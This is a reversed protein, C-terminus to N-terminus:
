EKGTLHVTGSSIKTAQVGGVNIGYTIEVNVTYPKGDIIDRCSDVRPGAAPTLAMVTFQGGNPVKPYCSPSNIVWCVVGGAQWNMTYPGGCPDLACTRWLYFSKANDEDPVVDFIPWQCTDNDVTVMLDQIAIEGGAANVFQCTFGNYNGPPWWLLNRMECTPLLPKLAQFGTATPPVSGGVNFVGLQWMVGGVAMIVLIAWGYSMLYEMAGQAKSDM